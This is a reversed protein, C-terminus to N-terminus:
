PLKKLLKIKFNSNWIHAQGRPSPHNVHRCFDLWFRYDNQNLYGGLQKHSSNKAIHELAKALNTAFLQNGGNPNFGSVSTGNPDQINYMGTVPDFSYGQGTSGQGTSGYGTATSITSQTANPVTNTSQIPNPVTSTSQMPNPVTGGQQNGIQNGTSNSGSNNMSMASHRHNKGKQELIDSSYGEWTITMNENSYQFITDLIANLISEYSINGSGISKLANFNFNHIFVTIWSMNLYYFVSIPNLYQSFVNIDLCYNILFRTVFGITFLTLIKIFHNKLGLFFINVIYLM